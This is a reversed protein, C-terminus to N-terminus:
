KHLLSISARPSKPMSCFQFTTQTADRFGLDDLIPLLLNSKRAAFVACLNYLVFIDSLSDEVERKSALEVLHLGFESLVDYIVMLTEPPTDFPSGQPDLELHKQVKGTVLLGDELQEHYVLCIFGAFPQLPQIHELVASEDSHARVEQVTFSQTATAV